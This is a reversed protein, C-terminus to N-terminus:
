FMKKSSGCMIYLSQMKLVNEKTIWVLYISEAVKFCKRQTIWMHCISEGVKFYKRQHDVCSIYVGWRQFMKKPSPFMIYLSRLKLVNEKTIWMSIYLSRLKLVKEKTIWVHYMSEEVKFCKRQHGACSIYVGCSQLIKKPSGCMIALSRLKLVNEETIWM